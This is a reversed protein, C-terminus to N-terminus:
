ATNVSLLGKNKTDQWENACFVNHFNNGMGRVVKAIQNNKLNLNKLGLIRTIKICHEVTNSSKKTSTIEDHKTQWSLQIIYRLPFWREIDLNHQIQM